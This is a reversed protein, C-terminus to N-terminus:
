RGDGDLGLSIANVAAAALASGGRRGPLTAHPVDYDGSLLADKSEAAGVFGVPFACIVAPKPWGDQLLELLRFLATPANGIAVIAGSIHPAWLDVGAASRTTALQSAREAIDPANLTCLVDSRAARGRKIIGRAVMDADCLIPRGAEMASRARSVFGSSIVLESAIEIMGCAHILRVAVDAEDPAFRALDAERRVTAFSAEYIAKPDRLYTLAM